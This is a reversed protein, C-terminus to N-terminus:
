TGSTCLFLFPSWAHDGKLAQCVLYCHLVGIPPGKLAQCALCCLLVGSSCTPPWKLVQCMSCYLPVWGPPGKLHRICWAVFFSGLMPPWKLAQHVSCFLFGALPGKLHSVRFILSPHWGTQGNLRKINCAVSFSGLCPPGKHGQYLSCYPLVWVPHHPPLPPVPAPKLAQHVLCCILFGPFTAM